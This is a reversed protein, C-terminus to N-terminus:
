ITKPGIFYGDQQYDTFRLAEKQSISEKPEDKRLHNREEIPRFSPAVDSTDVEDLITFTELIASVDTKFQALEEDTLTLKANHAVAAILEDTINM